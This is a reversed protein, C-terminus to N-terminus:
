IVKLLLKTLHLGPKGTCLLSQIFNYCHLVFSEGPNSTGDYADGSGVDDEVSEDEGENKNHESNERRIAAFWRPVDDKEMGQEKIYMRADDVFSSKFQLPHSAGFFSKWAADPRLTM